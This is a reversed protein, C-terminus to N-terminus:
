RSGMSCTRMGAGRHCDRDLKAEAVKQLETRSMTQEKEGKSHENETGNGRRKQKNEAGKGGRKHENEAGKEEKKRGTKQVKEEVKRSTKEEADAKEAGERKGIERRRRNGMVWCGEM